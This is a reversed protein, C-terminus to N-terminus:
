GNRFHSLPFHGEDVDMVTEIEKKMIRDKM